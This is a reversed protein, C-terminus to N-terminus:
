PTPGPDVTAAASENVRIGQDYALEFSGFGVGNGYSEEYLAGIAPDACFLDGNTKDLSITSRSLLRLFRTADPSHRVTTPSASNRHYLCSACM